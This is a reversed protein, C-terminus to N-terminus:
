KKNNYTSRKKNKRKHKTNKKGGRSKKSSLFSKFTRRLFNSKMPNITDTINNNVHDFYGEKRLQEIFDEDTRNPNNAFFMIQKHKLDGMNEQNDTAVKSKLAQTLLDNIKKDQKLKQETKPKFGYTNHFNDDYDVDTDQKFKKKIQFDSLIKLCCKRIPKEYKKNDEKEKLCHDLECSM